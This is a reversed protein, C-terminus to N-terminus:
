PNKKGGWNYVAIHTSTHEDNIGSCNSQDQIHGNSTLVMLVCMTSEM